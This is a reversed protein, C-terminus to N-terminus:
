IDIYNDYTAFTLHTYISSQNNPFMSRISFTLNALGVEKGFCTKHYNAIQINDYILVVM